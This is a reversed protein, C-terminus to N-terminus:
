SAFGAHERPAHPIEKMPPLRPRMFRIRCAGRSCAPNAEYRPHRKGIFRIGCAGQSCAPNGEPDPDVPNVRARVIVSALRTKVRWVRWRESGLLISQSPRRM